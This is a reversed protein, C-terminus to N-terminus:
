GTGDSLITIGTGSVSLTGCAIQGTHASHRDGGSTLAAGYFSAASRVVHTRAAAHVMYPQKIGSVVKLLVAQWFAGDTDLGSTSGAYHNSLFM